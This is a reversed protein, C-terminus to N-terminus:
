RSDYTELVTDIYARARSHADRLMEPLKRRATASDFPYDESIWIVDDSLEIKIQIKVLM